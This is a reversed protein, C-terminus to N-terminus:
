QEKRLTGNKTVQLGIDSPLCSTLMYKGSPLICLIEWNSANKKDYVKLVLDGGDEELYFELEPIKEDKNEDNNRIKIKIM